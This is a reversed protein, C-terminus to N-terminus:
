DSLIQRVGLITAYPKGFSFNRPEGPRHTALAPVAPGVRLTNCLSIDSIAAVIGPRMGPFSRRLKDSDIPLAGIKELEMRKYHVASCTGANGLKWLLEADRLSVLVPKEATAASITLPRYWALFDFARGRDVIVMASWDDQQWTAPGQATWYKCQDKSTFYPNICEGGFTPYVFVDGVDMLFAQPKKLVPRPRSRAPPVALRVRLEELARRRKKLGSPNMGLKELMAIDSGADIIAIARESARQCVIGRKAFQDAVVLWFTTHDEDDAHSAAAAETECLIEALRDGDFPLRAVASIASRLDIAFDGSYLGAGWVGM